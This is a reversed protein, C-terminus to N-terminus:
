RRPRRMPARSRRSIRACRRLGARRSLCANMEEVQPIRDLRIGTKRPGEVYVPHASTSLARVLHKMVFRWVAHDQPTYREYEQGCVCRRLPRPLPAIVGLTM